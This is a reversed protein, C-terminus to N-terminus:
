FQLVLFFVLLRKRQATVPSPTLPIVGVLLQPPSVQRATLLGSRM